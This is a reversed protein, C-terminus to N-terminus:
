LFWRFLTWFYLRGRVGVPAGGPLEDGRGLPRRHQHVAHLRDHVRDPVRQLAQLVGDDDSVTEEGVHRRQLQRFREPHDRPRGQSSMDCRAAGAGPGQHSAKQTDSFFIFPM